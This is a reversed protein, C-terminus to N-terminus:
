RRRHKKFAKFDDLVEKESIKRLSFASAIKRGMQAVFEKKMEIPLNGSKEIPLFCGVMKGHNTVLVMEGEKSYDALSARFERVSALKM